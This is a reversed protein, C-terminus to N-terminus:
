NERRSYTEMYILKKKLANIDNNYNAYLMKMKNCADELEEVNKKLKKTKNKLSKVKTDLRGVETNIIKAHMEDRQSEIIDLKGLKKLIEEIKGGLNEAMILAELVDCCEARSKKEDPS